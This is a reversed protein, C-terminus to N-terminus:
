TRRKVLGEAKKINHVSPISIGVEDAVQRATLGTKLLKIVQHRMSESIPVWRRKQSLNSGLVPIYNASPPPPMNKMLDRIDSSALPILAHILSDVSPLGVKEPLAVLLKTSVEQLDTQLRELKERTARYEETLHTFTDM